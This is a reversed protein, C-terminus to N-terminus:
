HMTHAQALRGRKITTGRPREPCPDILAGPGLNTAHAPAEGTQTNRRMISAPGAIALATCLNGLMALAAGNVNGRQLQAVTGLNRHAVIPSLPSLAPHQREPICRPHM